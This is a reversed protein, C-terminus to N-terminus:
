LYAMLTGLCFSIGLLFKKGLFRKYTHGKTQTQGLDKQLADHTQGRLKEVIRDPCKCVAENIQM